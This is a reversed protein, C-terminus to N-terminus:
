AGPPNTADFMTQLEGYSMRRITDVMPAGLNRVPKVLREGMGLNGCHCVVVALAPTGDAWTTILAAAAL